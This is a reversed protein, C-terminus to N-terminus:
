PLRQQRKPMPLGAFPTQSFLGERMLYKYFARLVAVQRLVTTREKGQAHLEALFDRIPLRHSRNFALGPYKKSIFSLYVRLDHGYARLTHPSVNREARLHLLFRQIQKEIM